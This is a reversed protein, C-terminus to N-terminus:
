TATGAVVASLNDTKWINQGSALDPTSLAVYAVNKNNPDIAIKSIFNPPISGTVDILTASASVTAFVRGSNLGVIRVNDDQPSIGIASIPTGITPDKITPEFPAQSVVTMSAGKNSSRYLRDTGFYVTNPNGPGLAMPAYFNVNDAGSIGNSPPSTTLQNGAKDLAYGYFTWPNVDPADVREFGIQSSTKNFYTHYLTVNSTDTANQDILCAGGDGGATQSWSGSSSMLETGNDQTGGLMYNRDTPHVAIDQFQTASFGSNSQSNWTAGSDTSKWIGGDSGYYLTSTKSPAVAIAHADSHLGAELNQFSAGGNTSRAFSASQVGYFLVSTGGIYITNTNAPDVAVAMDYFSQTNAFGNAGALPASFASWTTGNFTAQRLTGDKSVPNGKSDLGFTQNPNGNSDTYTTQAESTAAIV